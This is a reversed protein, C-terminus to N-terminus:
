NTDLKLYPELDVIHLKQNVSIFPKLKFEENTLYYKFGNETTIGEIQHFPLALKIKRKNGSFFNTDKYDYLLYLFPKLKKSYGSLVVVKINELLVAGTILGKVKLTAKYKASYNGAIKPLVYLRTKKSKWEKTFLYLSDRTVIISECDFNTTNAKQREFNNQDEFVFSITDIIPANKLLSNKEIKLIKLDKRNGSVNNGFDGIYIHLSDQSIEEWDKNKVNPLLHKQLNAGISDFSFIHTNKDDNITWLKQNWYMLGSTEHITKDLEKSFIPKIKISKYRCSGDNITAKSNYNKANLDTCGSIQAFGYNIVLMLFLTIVKM